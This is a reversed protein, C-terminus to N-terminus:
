VARTDASVASRPAKTSRSPPIPSAAGWLIRRLTRHGSWAGRGHGAWTMPHVYCHASSPRAANSACEGNRPLDQGPQRSRCRRGGAVTLSCFIIMICLMESPIAKFPSAALPRQGAGTLLRLRRPNQQTPRRLHRRAWARPAAALAVSGRPARSRQRWRAAAAPGTPVRAGDACGPAACAARMSPPAPPPPRKGPARPARPEPDFRRQRPAGVAAGLAGTKVRSDGPNERM